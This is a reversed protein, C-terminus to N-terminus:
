KKWIKNRIILLLLIVSSTITVAIGIYYIKQPYYSFVVEGALGHPFYWANAFGSSTFHKTDKVSKCDSGVCVNWFQSFTERMILTVPKNNFIEKVDATYSVPSERKFKVPLDVNKVNKLKKYLVVKPISVKYVAINQIEITTQGPLLFDSDTDRKLISEELSSFGNCFLVNAYTKKPYFVVSRDDWQRNNPLFYENISLKSNPIDPDGIYFALDKRDTLNRYTFSVRYESDKELNKLPYTICKDQSDTTFSYLGNASIIGKPDEPLTPPLNNLLNKATTDVLSLHLNKGTFTYNGFSLWEDIEQIPQLKKDTGQFSLEVNKYNDNPYALSTKNVMITYTGNEPLDMNYYKTVADNTSWLMNKATLVLDTVTDYAQSLVDRYPKDIYQSLYVKEVMASQKFIHAFIKRAADSQQKSGIASRENSLFQKFELLVSYYNTIAQPLLNLKQKSEIMWSIEAIRRDSLTLYLNLKSDFDDSKAKIKNEQYVLLPYFISGPLINPNYPVFGPDTDLLTCHDCEPAVFVDTAEKVFYSNDTTDTFVAGVPDFYPMSTIQELNGQIYQLKNSLSIRTSENSNKMAYVEWEGFKKQLSFYSNSTLMKKYFQPDTTGWTNNRWDFDQQLVIGDIGLMKRLSDFERLDNRKLADYLKNVLIRNNGTYFANNQVYSNKALLSSIPSLSWYGWTYSIYNSESLEPLILYRKYDPQQNVWDGFDFVYQPIAVRTTLLKGQDDHSYDFFSGNLIPYHYLLLGLLFFGVAIWSIYRSLFDRKLWVRLRSLLTDLTYGILLAYTFWLVYDFKYFSSRFISFGPVHLVLLTYLFGLQSKTASIFIMALLSMLALVHIFYKDEKNKAFFEASYAAIPFLLSLFILFPNKLFAGAYAHTPNLYWDPIGQGRFINIFSAGESLYRTWSLTGETGGVAALDKSFSSTVYMVYPIIWYANTLFYVIGIGVLFKISRLLSLFSRSVLLDFLIITVIAVMMGGYLPISGGGNFIGLIIGAILASKRLSMKGLLYSLMCCVVIPFAAYLSFKTREAAFWGQLLYYNIMYIAAAFIPLYQKEPWLKRAAYYMTIGPLVFWFIFNLKEVNQVSFGIIRLLAEMGHIVFVSGVLGNNLDAGFGFHTSWLYLRDQFHVIPDFPLGSDHGIITKGPQFWLLPIFGLLIIILFSIIHKRKM